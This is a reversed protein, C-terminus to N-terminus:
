VNTEKNRNIIYLNPDKIQSPENDTEAEAYDEELSFAYRDIVIWTPIAVLAVIITALVILATYASGFPSNEGIVIMIIVVFVFNIPIFAVIPILM